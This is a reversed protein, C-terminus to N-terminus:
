FCVMVQGEREREREKIMEREKERERKGEREGEKEGEAYKVEKWERGWVLYLFPRFDDGLM